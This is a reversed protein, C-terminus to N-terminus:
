YTVGNNPNDIYDCVSVHNLGIKFEDCPRPSKGTGLLTPHTTSRWVRGVYECMFGGLPSTYMGGPGPMIPSLANCM